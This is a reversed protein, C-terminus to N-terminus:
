GKPANVFLMCGRGDGKARDDIVGCYAGFGSSTKKALGFRGNPRNWSLSERCLHNSDEEDDGTFGAGWRGMASVRQPSIISTQVAFVCTGVSPYWATTHAFVDMVFTAMCLRSRYAAAPPETTVAMPVAPGAEALRVPTVGVPSILATLAHAHVLLEALELIQM